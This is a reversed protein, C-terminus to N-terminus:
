TLVLEGKMTLVVEQLVPQTVMQLLVSRRRATLSREPSATKLRQAPPSDLRAAM